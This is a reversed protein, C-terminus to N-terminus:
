QESSVGFAEAVERRLADRQESLDKQSTIFEEAWQRIEARRAPGGLVYKALLLEIGAEVVMRMMETTGVGYREALGNLTEETAPHVRVNWAFMRGESYTRPRGTRAM